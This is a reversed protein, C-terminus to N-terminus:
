EHFASSASVPACRCPLRRAYRELYDAMQDEHPVLEAARFVCATSAPSSGRRSCASRIGAREGPTASPPSADLIVFPVGLRALHYGVSLGTQGGGIVVTNIQATAHVNSM